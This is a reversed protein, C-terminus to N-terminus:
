PTGIQAPRRRAEDAAADFAVLELSADYRCRQNRQGTVAADAFRTQRQAGRRLHQVRERVPNPDDVKRRDRRGVLDHAAYRLHELQAFLWVTVHQLRNDGGQMALAYQEDEIGALANQARARPDGFGDEITAGIRADQRGATTWKSQGGFHDPRDERQGYWFRNPRGRRAVHERSRGRLEKDLARAANGPKSGRSEVACIM